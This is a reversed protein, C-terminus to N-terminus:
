RKELLWVVWKTLGYYRRYIASAFRRQARVGYRVRNCYNWLDPAFESISFLRGGLSRLNDLNVYNLGTRAYSHNRRAVECAPLGKQYENRIGLSAWFRYYGMSTFVGGFPVRVHPEILMYRPPFTHIAISRPRMVRALERIVTEHDQVHEMVECSFVFDFAEDPYPLRFRSWDLSYDATNAGRTSVDFFERESPSRLKLCDHIDFGRAAFGADRFQLVISGDGCGFDLIDSTKELFLGRVALMLRYQEVKDFTSAQEM